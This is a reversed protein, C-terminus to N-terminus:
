QTLVPLDSLRSVRPNVCVMQDVLAAAAAGPATMTETLLSGDAFMLDERQYECVYGTSISAVCVSIGQVTGVVVGLRGLRAAGLCARSAASNDSNRTSVLIGSRVVGPRLRVLDGPLLDDSTTGSGAPGVTPSACSASASVISANGRTGDGLFKTSGAALETIFNELACDVAAKIADKTSLVGSPESIPHQPEVQTRWQFSSRREPVVSSYPLNCVLGGPSGGRVFVSYAAGLALLANVAELEGGECALALATQDRPNRARLAMQWSLPPLTRHMKTIAEVAGAEVLKHLSSCREVDRDCRDADAADAGAPALVVERQGCCREDADHVDSDRQNAEAADAVDATATRTPAMEKKPDIEAPCIVQM